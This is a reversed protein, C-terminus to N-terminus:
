IRFKETSLGTGAFSISYPQANAQLTCFIALLFLLRQMIIQNTLKYINNVPKKLLNYFLDIPILTIFDNKVFVLSTNRNKV